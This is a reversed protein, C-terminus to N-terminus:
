KFKLPTGLMQLEGGCKLFQQEPQTKRVEYQRALGEWAINIVQRAV